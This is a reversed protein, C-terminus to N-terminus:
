KKIKMKIENIIPKIYVLSILVFALFAYRTIYVLWGKDKNLYPLGEQPPAVTYMFNIPSSGDNLISNLYISGFGFVALLILCNFYDKIDWKIEKSTLLYLAFITIAVHYGFYQLSILWMGNRSSDTAILIAFIGGFLCSPMMFAKLKRKLNENKSLYLIAIFIIQISCLHFPLDTKPLYGNHTAENNVIYYFVKIIESVIGVFFLIKINQKLTLKRSGFCGLIIAIFSVIMLIIHKTGFLTHM